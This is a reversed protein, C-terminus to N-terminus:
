REGGATPSSLRGHDMLWVAAMREAVAPDHTAIVLASRSGALWELLCDILAKGTSRDLQGTPEDALLLQPRVAMARAMAVRQGQGGSLEEPLKDALEALGVRALADM